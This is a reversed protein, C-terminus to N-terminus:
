SRTESGQSYVQDKDQSFSAYASFPCGDVKCVRITKDSDNKSFKFDYRTMCRYQRIFDRFQSPREFEMGTQPVHNSMDTVEKFSPYKLVSSVEEEDESNM